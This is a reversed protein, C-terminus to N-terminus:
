NQIFCFKFLFCTIILEKKRNFAHSPLVPMVLRVKETLFFKKSTKLLPTALLGAGEWDFYKIKASIHRFHV